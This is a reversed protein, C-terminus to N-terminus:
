YITAPLPVYGYIFYYPVAEPDPEIPIDPHEFFSKMESAFALLCDDRYYFLPKKGARDRALVLRETREDWIAIAFMGELDAICDAGKEEYLHVIVETDSQSRFRHGRAVLDKRLARYNYIEGNFVVQVTGDENAMPQGANPTLDIIKLRRFGLGASGRRSVYAGFSDPGRHVLRDRMAVLEAERVATGDFRLEGCIGCM